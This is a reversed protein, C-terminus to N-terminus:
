IPGQNIGLLSVRIKPSWLPNKVVRPTTEEPVCFPKKGGPNLLFNRVFKVKPSFGIGMTFFGVKKFFQARYEM